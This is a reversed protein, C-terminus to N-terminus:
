LCYHVEDNLEYLLKELKDFFLEKNFNILYFNRSMRGLEKRDSINLEKFKKVIEALKVPNEAPACFGCGAQKVVDAAAGDASVILPKGSAMYSQVKAPLTLAINEDSTLTVLMADAKEYYKLTDDLSKRGYFIVNSLKLEDVTRKCKQFESGDGIINWIIGKENKLIEAAKIITPISQATGINGAFVLNITEDSNETEKVKSYIEEAYQPIYKIRYYPIQFERNLYDKFGLSSVAITSAYTYIKESIKKFFKYILNGKKIGGASLSAPWLDLCYLLVNTGTRKKYYLAALSMTVPSSQYALVVDYDDNLTRVFLLSSIAFSMYNLLRFIVNNRRGITFTRIINVGNNTERRRNRKRYEKFIYGMPYNPVGTVVDVIHGRKVLEECIDSLKYPEPWYHQCVVLIKM